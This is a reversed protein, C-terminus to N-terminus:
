TSKNKSRRVKSLLHVVYLARDKESADVHCVQQHVNEHDVNRKQHHTEQDFMMVFFGDNGDHDDLVDDQDGGGATLEKVDM